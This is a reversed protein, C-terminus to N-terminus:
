WGRLLRTIETVDTQLVIVKSIVSRSLGNVSRLYTKLITLDHEYTFIMLTVPAFFCSIHDAMGLRLHFCSQLQLSPLDMESVWPSVVNGHAPRYSRVTSCAAVQWCSMHRASVWYQETNRTWPDDAKSEISQFATKEYSLGWIIM